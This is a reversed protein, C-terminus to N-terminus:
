RVEERWLRSMTKLRRKDESTTYITTTNISAHGLNLQLVEIPVGRAVAHAGHTHRLWHTSAQRLRAAGQSDNAAALVEACTAFFVKLQEYLTAISIGQAPSVSQGQAQSLKDRADDAKGLLYALRTQPDNLDPNLGRQALYSRLVMMVAPDVPVDRTKNGKGLVTLLWGEAHESDELDAPYEVWRLDGVRATVIESARLGTAYLFQMVFRLRRNAGTDPLVALQEQVLMWQARSFSRGADVKPAQRQHPSVGNWPNGLLYCQDVLFAYLSRLVTLAQRQSREVLPGEFPRWMPSWRGNNRAGCWRDAPTPNLLFDRYELCDELTMSSLPKNKQVVAWLLFREAEKRYARRTHASTKSRLWTMLAEYDNRAALLCLQQPARYLGHEGNLAAPVIFKELPRIATAPVVVQQLTQESLQGRPVDAHAGIKLGISAEHDRLWQVIRVGKAAGIGAIGNWWRMGSGNIREILQALAHLGAAQLRVALSPHLWAGVGDALQPAQVILSELWRLAALQKTILRARRYLRPMAAGYREVYLTSVDAESFDNAGIEQAFAYLDPLRAEHDPITAADMLVLRSTGPKRERRAAAAFEDRIWAITHRVRRVDQYQGELRLYRDWSSRADLGQVVARMFAFHGLHLRRRPSASIPSIESPYISPASAQSSIPRSAPM